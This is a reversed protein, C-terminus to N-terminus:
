KRCSSMVALLETPLMPVGALLVAPLMCVGALLVAAGRLYCRMGGRTASRGAALLLFSDDSFIGGGSFVDHGSCFRGGCTAFIAAPQLMRRQRRDRNYCGGANCTTAVPTVHLLRRRQNYCCGAVRSAGGMTPPPPAEIAATRLGAMLGEAGRHYCCQEGRTAVGGVAPLVAPL